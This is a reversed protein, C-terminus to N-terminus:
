SAHEGHAKEARDVFTEGDKVPWTNTVPVADRGHSVHRLEDDSIPAVDCPRRRSTCGAADAWANIEGQEKM